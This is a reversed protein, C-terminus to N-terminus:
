RLIRHMKMKSKLSPYLEYGPRALQKLYKDQSFNWIGEENVEPWVQFEDLLLDPSMQVLVADPRVVNMAKYLNKAPFSRGQFNPGFFVVNTKRENNM